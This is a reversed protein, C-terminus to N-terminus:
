FLSQEQEKKKPRKQLELQHLQRATDKLIYTLTMMFSLHPADLSILVDGQKFVAMKDGVFPVRSKVLTYKQSLTDFFYDFRSKDLSFEIAKIIRNKASCFVEVKELKDIPIKDKQIRYLVLDSGQPGPIQDVVEYKEKVDCLTSQDLTFGLVVPNKKFVQMSVNKAKIPKSIGQKGRIYYAFLVIGALLFLSTILSKEKKM